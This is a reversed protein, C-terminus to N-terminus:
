LAGHARPHPAKIGARSAPLLGIYRPEFPQPPWFGIINPENWIQWMRIPVKPSHDRWFSGNAGYRRVLAGVFRAYPADKRPIDVISGRYHVGDWKPASLIVPLVTLQRQAALGVIQDLVDFRTPVGGVNEFQSKEAAPVKKRRGSPPAPAWDLPLRLTQVGSAVMSDLQHGLDISPDTDPYLPGDIMMGVVGTPVAAPPAANGARPRPQGATSAGFLIATLALAAALVLMWPRLHRPM